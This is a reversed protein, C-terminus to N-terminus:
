LSQLISKMESFNTEESASVFALNTTEKIPSGKSFVICSEFFKQPYTEHINKSLNELLGPLILDRLITHEQSKSSAVSIIQSSDRNTIEYLIQESTLTSNLTEMFGLGTM